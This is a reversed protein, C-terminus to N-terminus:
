QSRTMNLATAVSAAQRDSIPTNQRVVQAQCYDKFSADSSFFDRGSNMRKQQQARGGGGPGGATRTRGHHSTLAHRAGMLNSPGDKPILYPAANRADHPTHAHSKTQKHRAM